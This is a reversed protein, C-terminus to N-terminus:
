GPEEPGDGLGLDIRAQLEEFVGPEDHAPSVRLAHPRPPDELGGLGALCRQPAPEGPILGNWEFQAVRSQELDEESVGEVTLLREFKHPGQALAALVLDRCQTRDFRCRLGGFGFAVEVRVQGQPQSNGIM